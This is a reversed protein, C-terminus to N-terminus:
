DVVSLRDKAEAYPPPEVLHRHLADIHEQIQRQWWPDTGGLARAIRLANTHRVGRALIEPRARLADNLDRTLQQIPAFHAVVAALGTQVSTGGPGVGTTLYATTAADFHETAARLADPGSAANLAAAADAIRRHNRQWATFGIINWFPVLWTNHHARIRGLVELYRLHFQYADDDVKRTPRGFLQRPVISRYLRTLRAKDATANRGGLRPVETLAFPMDTGELFDVSALEGMFQDDADRTSRRGAPTGPSGQPQQADWAQRVGSLYQPTGRTFGDNHVIWTSIGPRGTIIIGIHVPLQIWRFRLKLDPHDRLLSLMYTIRLAYVGCDHVLQGTLARPFRTQLLDQRLDEINMPSHTTFSRLYVRLLDIVAALSADADHSTRLHQEFKARLFRRWDDDSHLHLGAMGSATLAAKNEKAEATPQGNQEEIGYIRRLTALQNTRIDFIRRVDITKSPGSTTDLEDYSELTVGRRAASPDDPFYDTQRLVDRRGRRKWEWANIEVEIGGRGDERPLEIRAMTGTHRTQLQDLLAHGQNATLQATALELVSQFAAQMGTFLDQMLGLLRGHYRSISIYPTLEFGVGIGGLAQYLEAVRKRDAEVADHDLGAREAALQHFLLAMSDLVHLSAGADKWDVRSRLRQVVEGWHWLEDDYYRRVSSRRGAFGVGPLGLYWDRVRTAQQPLGLLVLRTLLEDVVHGSPFDPPLVHGDVRAMATVLGPVAARDDHEVAEFVALIPTIAAHHPGWTRQEEGIVQQYYVTAIPTKDSATHAVPDRSQQLAHTVEHALLEQGARTHPAPAGPAFAILAGRTEARAGRSAVGVDSRRVRVRSLDVEFAAELRTRAAEELPLGATVPGGIGAREWVAAGDHAFRHANARAEIEERTRRRLLFM